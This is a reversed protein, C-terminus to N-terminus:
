RREDRIPRFPYQLLARLRRLKSDFRVRPRFRELHSASENNRMFRHTHVRGLFARILRSGRGDYSLIIPPRRNQAPQSTSASPKAKQLVLLCQTEGLELRTPTMKGKSLPPLSHVGVGARPRTDDCSSPTDITRSFIKKLGRYRKVDLGM